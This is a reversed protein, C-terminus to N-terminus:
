GFYDNLDEPNDLIILDDWKPLSEEEIHLSVGLFAQLNEINEGKKGILLGPRYLQIIIKNHSVLVGTIGLKTIEIAAKDYNGSHKQLYFQGIKECVERTKKHNVNPIIM